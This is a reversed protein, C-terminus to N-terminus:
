RWEKASAKAPRREPGSGKPSEKKKGRALRTSPKAFPPHLFRSAGASVCREFYVLQQKLSEEEGKALFKIEPQQPETGTTGAAATPPATAPTSM